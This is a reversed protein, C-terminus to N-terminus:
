AAPAPPATAFVVTVTTAISRPVRCTRRTGIRTRRVRGNALRTTRYRPVDGCFRGPGFTGEAGYSGFPGYPSTVADGVAVLAGLVLGSEQALAGARERAARIALPLVEAQAAEVARAISRSSRRDEPTPEVSASGSATVTGPAPAQAGASATPLAVASVALAALVLPTRRSM